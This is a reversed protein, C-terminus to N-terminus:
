NNGTVKKIQREGFVFLSDRFAAMGVVDAGFELTGSTSGYADPDSPQSFLIKNGGNNSSPFGGYFKHNKFDTSFKAGSSNTTVGAAHTVVTTGNFTAPFNLGDTIIVDETSGYASM